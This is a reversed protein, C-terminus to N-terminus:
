SQNGFVYEVQDFSDVPFVYFLRLPVLGTNVLGHSANEPIYATSGARVEFTQDNVTLVGSGEVIYYIEVPLHKHLSVTDPGGVPLEAIGCTLNKSASRDASILTRWQVKGRIPDDWQELACDSEHVIM